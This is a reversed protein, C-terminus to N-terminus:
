TVRTSWRRPSSRAAFVTVGAYGELAVAPREWLYAGGEVALVFLAGYVAALALARALSVVSLAGRQLLEIVFLLAVALAYFPEPFAQGLQRPGQVAIFGYYALALLVAGILTLAIGYGSASGPSPVADALGANASSDRAPRSDDNAM